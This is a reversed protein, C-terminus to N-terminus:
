EAPKEALFGTVNRFSVAFSEAGLAQKTMADHQQGKPWEVVVFILRIGFGDRAQSEPPFARPLKDDFAIKALARFCDSATM